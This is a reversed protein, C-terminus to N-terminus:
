SHVATQHVQACVGALVVAALNNHYNLPNKPPPLFLSTRLFCKGRGEEVGFHKCDTSRWASGRIELINCKKLSSASASYDSFIDRHHLIIVSNLLAATRGAPFLFLFFFFVGCFKRSFHSFTSLSATKHRRKSLVDTSPTFFLRRVRGVVHLTQCLTNLSGFNM